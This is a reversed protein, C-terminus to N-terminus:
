AYAITVIGINRVGVSELVSALAFTTAGTTYVDDIIIVSKGILKHPEAVVFASKLNRNRELLSFGTQTKTYRSRLVVGEQAVPLGTADQVGLAIVEAQNFGRMRKRRPHLPVPLFIVDGNGYMSAFIPLGLLQVGVLRGLEFGLKGMGNYKISHLLRQLVGGKDYKWLAFQFRISSPLIVGPCADLLQANAQDFRSTQCFPCLLEGGEMSPEGCSLCVGPFLMNKFGLVAESVIDNLIRMTDDYKMIKLEKKTILVEFGIGQSVREKKV